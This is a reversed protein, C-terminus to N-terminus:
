KAKERKKLHDVHSYWILLARRLHGQGVCVVCAQPDPQTHHVSVSGVGAPLVPGGERVKRLRTYRRQFLFCAEEKSVERWGWKFESDRECSVVHRWQKWARWPGVKDLAPVLLALLLERVACVRM